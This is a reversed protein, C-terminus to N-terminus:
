TTWFCGKGLWLKKQKSLEIGDWDGCDREVVADDSYGSGGGGGVAVDFVPVTNLYLFVSNFVSYYLIVSNPTHRQKENIKSNIASIELM